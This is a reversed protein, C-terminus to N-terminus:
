TTKHGCVEMTLFDSLLRPYVDEELVAEGLKKLLVLRIQGQRTKKDHRMRELLREPSFIHDLNQVCVPLGACRLHHEIQQCTKGSLSTKFSLDAGYRAQFRLAMMM